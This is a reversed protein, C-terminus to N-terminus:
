KGYETLIMMYELVSFDVAPKVTAILTRSASDVEVSMVEGVLLEPPYVSGIGSSFVRDGPQVKQADKADLDVFTLKCLGEQRMSVDGSLIGSVNSTPLYVGVARASELVTSVKCWTLGVESVCGVIGDKTIVPMDREIGHISGRNLTFVTIYNNAERGIVRAEEFAYSPNEAKMALYERLRANEAELMEARALQEKLAANEEKLSEVDDTLANISSFYTGFGDAANTFVSAIWRVPFAATGIIDRGLARYGMLSFTTSAGAIVVAVCLCIIFFKNKFIKM